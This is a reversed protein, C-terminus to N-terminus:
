KEDKMWDSMDHRPEDPEHRARSVSAEDKVPRVYRGRRKKDMARRLGALSDKVSKTM